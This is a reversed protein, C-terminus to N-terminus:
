GLVAAAALAVVLVVGTVAVGVYTQANGRQFRRL